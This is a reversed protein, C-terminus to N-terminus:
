GITRSIRNNCHYSTTPHMADFVTMNPESYQVICQWSAGTVTWSTISSCGSDTKGTGSSMNWGCVPGHLGNCPLIMTSFPAKTKWVNFLPHCVIKLAEIYSILLAIPAIFRLSQGRSSITGPCYWSNKGSNFLIWASRRGGCQGPISYSTRNISPSVGVPHGIYKIDLTRGSFRM